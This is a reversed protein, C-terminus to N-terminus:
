LVSRRWVPMSERHDSIKAARWRVRRAGLHPPPHPPPAVATKFGTHARRGPSAFARARFARIHARSLTRARTYGARTIRVHACNAHTRARIARAVRAVRAHPKLACMRVRTLAHVRTVIRTRTYLLPSEMPTGYEAGIYARTLVRARTLIRVRVYLAM